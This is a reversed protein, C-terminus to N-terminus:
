AGPFERLLYGALRATRIKQGRGSNHSTRLTVRSGRDVFGVRLPNLIPHVNKGNIERRDMGDLYDNEVDIAAQFTGDNSGQADGQLTYAVSGSFVWFGAKRVTIGMGNHLGDPDATASAKPFRIGSPREGLATVKSAINMNNARLRFVNTQRGREINDLRAGVSGHDFPRIKPDFYRNAVTFTVDDDTVSGDDNPVGAPSGDSDLVLDNYVQPNSGLALMTAKLEAQINNIHEADVDDLLNQHTPFNRVRSPYYSIAM